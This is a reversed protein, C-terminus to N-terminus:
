LWDITPVRFGSPRQTTAVGSEYGFYLDVSRQSGLNQTITQEFITKAADASSITPFEFPENSDLENLAELVPLFRDFFIGAETGTIGPAILDYFEAGIRAAIRRLELSGMAKTIGVPYYFWPGPYPGEQAYKSITSDLVVIKSQYNLNGNEILTEAMEAPAVVNTNYAVASSSPLLMTKKMEETEKEAAERLDGGTEIVKQLRLLAKGIILRVPKFGEAALPYYDITQGRLLGSEALAKQVQSPDTIDAIFPVPETGGNALVDNRVKQFKEESRTGALVTFGQSAYLKAIEAGTGSGAGLILVPNKTLPEREIRPSHEVQRPLTQSRIETKM